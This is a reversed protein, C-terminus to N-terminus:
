AHSVRLLAGTAGMARAVSELAAWEAQEGVGDIRASLKVGASDLAADLAASGKHYGYGTARGHGALSIGSHAWVSCYVPSAGDGRRAMYWRAIIWERPAGDADIGVVSAARILEKGPTLNKGNLVSREPLTAIMEM